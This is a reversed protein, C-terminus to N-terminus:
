LRPCKQRPLKKSFIKRYTNRESRPIELVILADELSLHLTSMVSRLHMVTRRVAEQRAGEKRGEVLGDKYTKNEQDFYEPM